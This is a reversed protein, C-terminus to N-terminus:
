GDATLSMQAWAAFSARHQNPSLRSSRPPSSWRSVHCQSSAKSRLDASVKDRLRL